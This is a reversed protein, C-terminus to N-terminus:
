RGLRTTLERILDTRPVRTQGADGHMDRVTVAGSAVEDEGIIL